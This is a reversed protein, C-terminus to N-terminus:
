AEVKIDKKTCKPNIATVKFDNSVRENLNKKFDINKLADGFTNMLNSSKLMLGMVTEINECDVTQIDIEINWNFSIKTKM